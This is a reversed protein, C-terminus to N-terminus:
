PAIRAGGSEVSPRSHHCAHDHLKASAVASPGARHVQGRMALDEADLRQTRSTHETATMM